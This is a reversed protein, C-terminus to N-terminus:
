LEYTQNSSTKVVWKGSVYEATAMESSGDSYILRDDISSFSLPTKAPPPVVVDGYNVTVDVPQAGKLTFTFVYTGPAPLVGNVDIWSTGQSFVNKSTVGAPASKLTWAGDYGAAGISNRGILAIKNGTITYSTVAKVTGSPPPDTPTPEPKTAGPVVYQIRNDRSTKLLYEYIAPYNIIELFGGHAKGPYTILVPKPNTASIAAIFNKVNSASVTPDTEYTTGIVQLGADVVNKTTTAWNVPAAAVAFALRKANTLSSTIYRLVAGGGLSFGIIVERSTDVNFNQEVTDLVYNVDNPNFENPYNVTVGIFQYKEIAAEFEPTEIAYQRPLPGPGDYDFGDSVNLLAPIDGAGREGMGHILVVVGYKKGPIPYDKPPRAHFGEKSDSERPFFYAGNIQQM